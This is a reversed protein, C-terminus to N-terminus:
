GTATRGEKAAAAAHASSGRGQIWHYSGAENSIYTVVVRGSQECSKEFPRRRAHLSLHANGIRCGGGLQHWLRTSSSSSTRPIPVASVPLVRTCALLRVIIRVLVLFVDVVVVIIIVLIVVGVSHALLRALLRPAHLLLLLLLLM